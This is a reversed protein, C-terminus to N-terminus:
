DRPVQMIRMYEAFKEMAEEVEGANRLIEATHRNLGARIAALETEELTELYFDRGPPTTSLVRHFLDILRKDDIMWSVRGVAKNRESKPAIYEIVPRDDTSLPYKVFTDKMNTLNGAYFTLLTEPFFVGGDEMAPLSTMRELNRRVDHMNLPVPSEYGVLGALSINAGFDNRWLTLQPFVELMTRVIIGFERETLNHLPIWQAFIGRKNLRRKAAEYIEKTYLSGTGAKWAVFLDSVIVDYTNTTGLLLSRGDDIVVSVRESEFLGNLWPTFHKRAATVVEPLLECVTVREVPHRLSAGATIGTGMGLFFVSKPDQHILLPLHAQRREYGFSDTGGAQYHNNIKMTLNKGRAVVTVIGGPGEFVEVLREREDLKAAPLYASDVLLAALIVTVAFALQYLRFRANSSVAVILALLGYVLVIARVSSWLGLIKMLLFGAALSGLISGMTNVATLRGIASGPSCNSEEFTRLLFPLLAGMVAGPILMVVAAYAFVKATYLVWGSDRALAELGNTVHHFALVSGGIALASVLLLAFVIVDTRANSICLRRAVMAGIALAFLFTALITSFTYVSNQLVQSFMRTWLVEMGLTTFGSSFALIYVLSGNFDAAPRRHLFRNPAKSEYVAPPAPFPGMRYAALAIALNIGITSLVTNSIGLLPPLFFGALLAGTVAGGTNLTYLLAGTRGLTARERVLYQALLPATGGMFFAPPFLMGVALLFKAALIAPLYGGTLILLTSYFSYYVDLLIFYLLASIAIGLELAAYVRLPRRFRNAREGWVANGVGLGLFFVALTTAAAHTTNGFLQGLAKLWLIEYVLAGYGSLFCLILVPIHHTHTPKDDSTSIDNRRKAM